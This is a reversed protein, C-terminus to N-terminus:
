VSRSPIGTATCDHDGIRSAGEVVRDLFVGPGGYELGRLVLGVVIFLGADCLLLLCGPYGLLDVIGDFLGPFLKLFAFLGDLNEKETRGENGLRVGRM